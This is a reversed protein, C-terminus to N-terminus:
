LSLVPGAPESRQTSRARRGRDSSVSERPHRFADLNFLLTAKIQSGIFPGIPDDTDKGAVTVFHGVASFRANVFGSNLPQWYLEMRDYWSPYGRRTFYFTEGTYLTSSYTAAATSAYANSSYVQQNDGFYFTNEFGFGSHRVNFVAEVGMPFHPSDGVSEGEENIVPMKFDLQYSALPGAKLSLEDIGAKPGFDFKVYPNVLAFDVDARALISGESHAYIASWGLSIWDVPKFAGATFLMESSVRDIGRIGAIDATVEAKFRPAAYKFTLGELNPDYYRLDDAFIARTYDGELVTRPHIGAYFDLLGDGFGKRYNYYFFIDKVLDINTLRAEHESDSYIAESTPNVGLNKTLDVGLALRHTTQRDQDFRLMAAPSFRAVNFTQSAMFIDGSAGFSRLDFFYQFDIDYEVKVANDQVRDQQQRGFLGQLDLLSQGSAVTASALIFSVSILLSKNRM